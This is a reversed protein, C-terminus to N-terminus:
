QGAANMACRFGHTYAEIAAGNPEPWDWARASARLSAFGTDFGGGRYAKLTGTAPGTPNAAPSSSYYSADYWDQVWENVNGSMELAGYPSAGDAHSGSPTLSDGCNGFNALECDPQTSGWPYLQESTGRAAKEWEAETPLRKGKWSCYAFASNWTVCVAPWEPHQLDATPCRTEPPPGQSCVGVDVCGQYDGQSVELRDILFADLVVVHAPQEDAACLMDGGACGMTFSGAPVTVMDPGPPAVFADPAADYSPVSADVMPMADPLSADPPQGDPPSADAPAADPAPVNMQIIDSRLGACCSAAPVATAVALSCVVALKM